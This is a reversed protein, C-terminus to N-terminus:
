NNKNKPWGWAIDFYVLTGEPGNRVDFDRYGRLNLTVPGIIQSLTLGIGNSQYKDVPEADSGDPDTVQRYFFGSIGATTRPTFELGLNWEFTFSDGPRFDHGEQNTHFEYYLGGTALFPMKDFIGRETRYTGLTFPMVTWFGLGTNDNGGHEYRGTPAFGGLAASLHFESWHWGLGVPSFFLDSLGVPPDQPQGNVMMPWGSLNGVAPAVVAQYDGGMFKLDPRWVFALSTLVYDTQDTSITDGSGDKFKEANFFMTTSMMYFGPDTAMIGAKLNGNWGPAYHGTQVSQAHVVNTNAIILWCLLLFHTMGIRKLGRAAKHPLRRNKEFCGPMSSGPRSTSPIM